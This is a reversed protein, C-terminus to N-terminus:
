QGNKERKPLKILVMGVMAPVIITSLLVPVIEGMVIYVYIMAVLSVLAVALFIYGFIKVVM